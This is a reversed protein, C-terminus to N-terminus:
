WTLIGSGLLLATMLVLTTGSVVLLCLVACVIYKVVPHDDIETVSFTM